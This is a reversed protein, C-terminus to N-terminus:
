VPFNPKLDENRSTSRLWFLSNSYNKFSQVILLHVALDQALAGESRRGQSPSVYRQEQQRTVLQSRQSPTTQVPLQWAWERLSGRCSRHYFSKQPRLLDAILCRCIDVRRVLMDVDKGDKPSTLFSHRTTTRPRSIVSQALSLSNPRWSQRLTIIARGGPTWLRLRRCGLAM